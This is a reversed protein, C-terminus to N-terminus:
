TSSNEEGINMLGATEPTLNGEDNTMNVVRGSIRICDQIPTGFEEFQEIRFQKKLVAELNLFQANM